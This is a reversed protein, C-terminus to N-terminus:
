ANRKTEKGWYIRSRDFKRIFELAGPVDGEPLKFYRTGAFVRLQDFGLKAGALDKENRITFRIMDASRLTSYNFLPETSYDVIWRDVSHAWGPDRVGGDCEVETYLGIASLGKILTGMGVQTSGEGFLCVWKSQCPLVEKVLDTTSPFEQGLGLKIFTTPLGYNLGEQRVGEWIKEVQIV